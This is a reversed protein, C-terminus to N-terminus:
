CLPEVFFIVVHFVSFRFCAIIDFLFSGHVLIIQLVFYRHGVVM